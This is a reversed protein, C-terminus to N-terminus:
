RARRLSATDLSSRVLHHILINLKDLNPSPRLEGNQDWYKTADPTRKLFQLPPPGLLAVMAALHHANNNEESAADYIPFISKQEIFDWTLHGISWCDVPYSWNTDLIIEPARYQIPMAIGTHESGIRAQGLDCITVPGPGGSIYRSVYTILDGVQKRASPDRIEEEEVKGPISDDIMAILLNDSHLDTHVVGAVHLFELAPLVQVLASKVLGLEFIGHKQKEQLSQLSMGLPIMVYVEHQGNPGDLVFSDEIQRIHERGPHEGDVSALHTGLRMPYYEASKYFPLREEEVKASPAIIPFGSSPFQRAPLPDIAGSSYRLQMARPALSSRAMLAMRHVQRTLM